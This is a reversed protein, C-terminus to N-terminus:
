ALHAPPGSAAPGSASARGEGSHSARTPPQQLRWKRGEWALRGAGHVPLTHSGPPTHVAHAPKRAGRPTPERSLRPEDRDGLLPGADPRQAPPSAKGTCSGNNKRGTPLIPRKVRADAKFLGKIRNHSFLVHDFGSLQCGADPGPTRQNRRAPSRRGPTARVGEEWHETLEPAKTSHSSLRPQSVPSRVRPRPPSAPQFQPRRTQPHPHGQLLGGDAEQPRTAVPVGSLSPETRTVSSPAPGRPGLSSVWSLMLQGQLWTALAPSTVRPHQGGPHASSLVLRHHECPSPVHLAWTGRRSCLFHVQPFACTGSHRRPM